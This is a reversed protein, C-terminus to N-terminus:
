ARILTIGIVIGSTLLITAAFGGLNTAILHAYLILGGNDAIGTDGLHTLRDTIAPFVLGDSILAISLLVMSLTVGVQAMLGPAAQQLLAANRAFVTIGFILLVTGALTMAHTVTWVPLQAAFTIDAVSHPPFNESSVGGSLFIPVVRLVSILSGMM